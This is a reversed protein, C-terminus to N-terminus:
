AGTALCVHWCQKRSFRCSRSTMNRKPKSRLGYIIQDKARRMLGNSDRLLSPGLELWVVCNFMAEKADAAPQFIDWEKCFGNAYNRSWRGARKPVRVTTTSDNRATNDDMDVDMFTVCKVRGFANQATIAQDSSVRPLLFDKVIDIIMRCM